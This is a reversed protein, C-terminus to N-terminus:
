QTEMTLSAITVQPSQTEGRACALVYGKPHFAIEDSGHFAIDDSRGFRDRSTGGGSNKPLLKVTGLREGTEGDALDVGEEESCCAVIKSDHSYAVSRVFKTRRGITTKCVMSPVDWLGVLADAGGTALMRGNPAFRLAYIPGTHGVFVAAHKNVDLCADSKQM